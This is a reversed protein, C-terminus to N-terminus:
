RTKWASGHFPTGGPERHPWSGPPGPGSRARHSSGPGCRTSSRPSSRRIIEPHYYLKMQSAAFLRFGETFAELTIGEDFDPREYDMYRADVLSLKPFREVTNREKEEDQRRAATAASIAAACTSSRISSFALIRFMFAALLIALIKVPLSFHPFYLKFITSYDAWGTIFVKVFGTFFNVVWTVINYVVKAILDYALKLFESM